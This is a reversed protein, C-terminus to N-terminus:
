TGAAAPRGPCERWSVAWGALDRAVAVLAEPSLHEGHEVGGGLGPFPFQLLMAVDRPGFVEDSPPHAVLPSVAIAM